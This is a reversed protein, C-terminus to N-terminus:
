TILPGRSGKTSVIKNRVPEILHLCHNAYDSVIIKGTPTYCLGRPTIEYGTSKLIGMPIQRIFRGNHEFQQIRHNATDAVAIQLKTNVAVDFPFKLKGYDSGLEGFSLLYMGGSSFVQIRHNNKDAIIIRGSKDVCIGAPSDFEGKANGKRGFKFLFRGDVGFAQVNCNRRDTVLIQGTKTVCVGSPRSVQGDGNGSTAFALTPVDSRFAKIKNIWGPVAEGVVVNKANANSRTPENKLNNPAIEVDIGQKNKQKVIHHLSSSLMERDGSSQLLDSIIDMSAAAYDDKPLHSEALEVSGQKKIDNLVNKFALPEYFKFFDNRPHKEKFINSSIEIQRNGEVLKMAISLDDMQHGNAALHQLMGKTDMLGSFASKLATMQEYLNEMRKKRIKEVFDLLFREREMIAAIIPHFTNRINQILADCNGDIFHAHDLENNICNRLCNIGLRCSELLVHLIDKGKSAVNSIHLYNHNEHGQPICIRCLLIKCDECMNSSRMTHM